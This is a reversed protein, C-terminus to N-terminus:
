TLEDAVKQPRLERLKGLLDIFRSHLLLTSL